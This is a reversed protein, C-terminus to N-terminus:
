SIIIKLIAEAISKRFDPKDQANSVLFFAVELDPSYIVLASFGGQDGYHGLFNQGNIQINQFGAPTEGGNKLWDLEDGFIGMNGRSLHLLAKSLENPTLILGSSPSPFLKPKMEVPELRKWLFTRHYGSMTLTELPWSRTFLSRAMGGPMLTREKAISEFPRQSGIELLYGILDFNTNTYQYSKKELKPKNILNPLNSLKRKEDNLLIDGIGRKDTLGSTHNLLELLSIEFFDSPLQKDKSLISNVSADMSLGKEVAYNALTLATFIKSVSAVPILSELTLSDKNKLNEFGFAKLYTVKENEIIGVAIGPILYHTLSQSLLSDIKSERSEPFSIPTLRVKPYSRWWEWGLFLIFWFALGLLMYKTIRKM